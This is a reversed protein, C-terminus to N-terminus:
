RNQSSIFEHHYKKIKQIKKNNKQFKRRRMPCSRFPVIIKKKERKRLVKWGIKTQFSAAIANKLKKLKKTIKKSNEIVCRAPVFRFLLKQKREKEAEKLRNQSSILCYHYKKLKKFKKAIKKQFKRKRTPYSRFLVIIKITEREWGKWALKPKFHLWM